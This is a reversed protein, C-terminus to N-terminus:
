RVIVRVTFNGSNDNLAYYRDNVMFKISGSSSARISADSGVASMDSGIKMILSGARASPMPFDNSSPFLSAMEGGDPRIPSKFPDWVVTGSASITVSGGAEVGIGTDVWDRTAPVQVEKRIEKRVPQQVEPKSEAETKVPVEKIIVQPESTRLHLYIGRVLCLVGFILLSGLLGIRLKPNLAM